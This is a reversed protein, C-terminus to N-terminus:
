KDFKKNKDTEVTKIEKVIIFVKKLDDHCFGFSLGIALPFYRFPKRFLISAILGYFVGKKLCLYLKTKYDVLHNKDFLLKTKSIDM